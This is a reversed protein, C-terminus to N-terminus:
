RGHAVAEGSVTSPLIVTFCAGKGLGQSTAHIHGHHLEVLHRAITLGLGLGSGSTDAEAQRYPEFVYPLFEPAIGHGDDEVRVRLGERTSDLVVSVGGGHQSHKIANTLLNSVVQQLRAADGRILPHDAAVHVDVRIGRRAAADASADVAADIVDRLDVATLRLSMDGRWAHALEVLDDILRAQLAANRQIALLARSRDRSDLRESALANSWSVIATLPTRLEHVVMSTFQEKARNASEAQLRADKERELSSRRERETRRRAAAAAGVSLSVLVFVGVRGAVDAVSFTERPWVMIVDLPVVALLTAALAPGIGAFWATVIVAAVFLPSDAAGVLPRLLMSTATALLVTGVAISYRRVRSEREDAAM